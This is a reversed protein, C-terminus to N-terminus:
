EKALLYLAQAYIKATIILRDVEAFENANHATEKEDPFVPGFSVFNTVDRCYTGGGIVIPKEDAGMFENYVSLLTRVLPASKPVYLAGKRRVPCIALGNEECTMNVTKWLVEGDIHIPYRIDFGCKAQNNELKMTSFNCTLPGSLQDECAIGLNKGTWDGGFLKALSNIWPSYIGLDLGALVPLLKQIANDGEWPQMAHSTVGSASLTVCDGDAAFTVDPNSAAEAAAKVAAKGEESCRLVAVVKAPVANLVTGGEISELRIPGEPAENWTKDITFRMIGKEGHIVPFNADPSFGGWPQERKTLYYAVGRHGTEEDTGIIHCITNKIPLGSEKIARMAFIAAVMPGKDDVVGRGIMRSGVQRAEFPPYEWDSENGAPVIDIHSLIGIEKEGAKLEISGAYGDYNQVTFGMGESIELVKDLAKRIEKGFPAGDEPEGIVSPIKVLERITQLMEESHADIWKNLTAEM